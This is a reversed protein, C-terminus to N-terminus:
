LPPVLLLIRILSSFYSLLAISFIMVKPGPHHGSYVKGIIVNAGDPMFIYPARGSTERNPWLRKEIFAVKHITFISLGDGAPVLLTTGDPSFYLGGSSSGPTGRQDLIVTEEGTKVSLLRVQVRTVRHMQMGGPLLTKDTVAVNDNDMGFVVAVTDNDPSFAVTYPEGAACKFQHLLEGSSASLIQVPTFKEPEVPRSFGFGEQYDRATIGFAAVFRGDPSCSAHHHGPM